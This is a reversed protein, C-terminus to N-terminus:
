IDAIEHKTVLIIVNTAHLIKEMLPSFSNYSKKVFGRNNEYGRNVGNM